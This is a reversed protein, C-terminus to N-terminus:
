AAREVRTLPAGFAEVLDSEAAWVWRPCTAPDSEAPILLRGGADNTGVVQFVRGTPAAYLEPAPAPTPNTIGSQGPLSNATPNNNM